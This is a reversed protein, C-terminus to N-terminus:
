IKSPRRRELGFIKSFYSRWEDVVLLRRWQREGEWALLECEAHYGTVLGRGADVVRTVSVEGSAATVCKAALRKSWAAPEGALRSPATVRLKARLQQAGDAERITPVPM